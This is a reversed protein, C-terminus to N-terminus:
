CSGVLFTWLTFFSVFVFLVEFVPSRNGSDRSNSYFSFRSSNARESHASKLICCRGRCLYTYICTERDEPFPDEEECTQEICIRCWKWSSFAVGRGEAGGQADGSIQPWFSLLHTYNLIAQWVQEHIDMHVYPSGHVCGSKIIAAVIECEILTRKITKAMYCMSIYLMWVKQFIITSKLM